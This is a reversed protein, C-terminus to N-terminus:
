FDRSIASTIHDLQGDAGVFFSNVGEMVDRLNELDISIRPLPVLNRGKSTAYRFSFSSADISHFEDVISDVVELSVGDGLGGISVITERCLNWLSNLDHDKKYNTIGAYSGYQDLIWKIAIELGHRYNFLIVYVLGHRDIDNVKCHDVLLGAAKMYGDWMFSQRAIEHDAFRAGDFWSAAPRLLRDGKQPWRYEGTELISAFEVM